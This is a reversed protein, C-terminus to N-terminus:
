QVLKTQKTTVKLAKKHLRKKGINSQSMDQSNLGSMHMPEMSTDIFDGGGGACNMVNGEM